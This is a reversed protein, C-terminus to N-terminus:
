RVAFSALAKPIHPRESIQVWPPFIQQGAADLLFSACRKQSGGRVAGLFHGMLGRVLESVFLVPATITLLKKANM